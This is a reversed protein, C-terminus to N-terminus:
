QLSSTMGGDISLGIGTIFSSRSSSLFIVADAVEEPRGMRGLPVSRSILESLRPNGETARIVM